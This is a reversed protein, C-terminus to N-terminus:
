GNIWKLTSETFFFFFLWGQSVTFSGSGGSLFYFMASAVTMICNGVSGAATKQIM